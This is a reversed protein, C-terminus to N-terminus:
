LQAVLGGRMRGQWQEQFPRVTASLVHNTESRKGTCGMGMEVWRRHAKTHLELEGSQWGRRVDQRLLVNRRCRPTLMGLRM